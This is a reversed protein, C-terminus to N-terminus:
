EDDKKEEAAKAEAEEAERKARWAAMEEDDKRDMEEMKEILVDAYKRFIRLERAYRAVKEESVADDKVMSISNENIFEDIVEKLDKTWYLKAM